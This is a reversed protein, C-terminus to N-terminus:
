ENELNKMKEDIYIDCMVDFVKHKINSKISSKLKNYIKKDVKEKEIPNLDITKEVTDQHNGNHHSENWCYYQIKSEDIYYKIVIDDRIYEKPIDYIDYTTKIFNDRIILKHDNCKEAKYLKILKKIDM